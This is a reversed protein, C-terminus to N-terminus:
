PAIESGDYAFCKGSDHPELTEIVNLLQSASYEPSFLKGEKVHAQFPKSLKSDVTGPHLGVIISQKNKRAMEISASKILMNLAAKSARYSYWGGLQNDSISGVRASIIALISRQSSRMLPAVHKVVLAPGITNTLFLQEFKEKSLEKLSKEPMIADSHLMGTAVLVFDFEINKPISSIASEISTEDDTDMTGITVKDSSSTIDHRSFAFIHAIDDQAELQKLFASGIAGSAGIIMVNKM